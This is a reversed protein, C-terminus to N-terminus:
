FSVVILNLNSLRFISFFTILFLSYTHVNEIKINDFLQIFYLEDIGPSNLFFKYCLRALYFMLNLDLSYTSTM